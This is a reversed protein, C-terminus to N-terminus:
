DNAKQNEVQLETVEGLLKVLVKSFKKNLIIIDDWKGEDLAKQLKISLNYLEKAGISGSSSKIKHVIQAADAYRKENINANLKDLTDKNENLYEELVQKYLEIDGGMNKLGAAQDLILSNGMLTDMITQIFYDPDYPKSIYHYMGSQRCKEIVGTIIDATMAIIPVSDSIKRIEEATEYGNMVPMHLDMLILDIKNKFRNYLEIGSKGDFALISEIGAQELLSKSILQNTKNDEVILVCYQKNLIPAVKMNEIPESSTLAIQSKNEKETDVYLSLHIKFTTGEGLSSVVQIQGGMMDVLNKAISLGLGSGGFRRNISIDAQTFPEFLKNVQEENMGIGTDIISFALHYKDNENAILEINLSVYGKETFKAANNLVNLLIQEIRKSDGFFWNPISSDKSFYFEIEQEEIKYSVISVVNGIVQELSFSAIDLEVKGAEIKSIDLTDNIINLMSSSAQTIRDAYMQQTLNLHTKKLLHTMGTIANLPTRIEHSMRAMFNSKFENAEDAELKAKELDIQILKRKQIESKLLVIWYFSVAMVVAVFIGIISIIRIVPGYDTEQSFDIWKNNIAIKEEETITSLAKNLISVLEPHEKNVAFHAAHQKEAEFAIFKLNTLGTSRIIYDTTGLNGVYAKETGNAVATLAAETSDYLSLNIKPKSSLYSHNSSNLQVAVTIGALDRVGSIETETDRIVIVRKYYYYPETFLFYLEREDTKSIAPLVDIDGSLAMDYAQPWTLGKVVEFNLGTKKSILSLYDAAIGKYEGDKDIFEFPVFNPDVGLRILPHENIFATEEDTLIINNNAAYCPITKILTLFIVVFLLTFLKRM